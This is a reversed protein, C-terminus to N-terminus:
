GCEETQLHRIVRFVVFEGYIVERGDVPIFIQGQCWELAPPVPRGDLLTQLERIWIGFCALLFFHLHEVGLARQLDLASPQGERSSASVM